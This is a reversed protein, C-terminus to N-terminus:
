GPGFRRFPGIFVCEYVIYDGYARRISTIRAAKPTWNSSACMSNATTLATREAEPSWPIIGGTDNGKPGFVFASAGGCSLSLGLAALLLTRKMM